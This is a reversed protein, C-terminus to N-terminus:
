VAQSVLLRWHRHVPSTSCKSQYRAHAPPLWRLDFGGRLWPWISKGGRAMAHHFTARGRIAKALGLDLCRSSYFHWHSCQPSYGTRSAPASQREYGQQVLRTASRNRESAADGTTM